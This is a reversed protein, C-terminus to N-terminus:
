LRPSSQRFPSSPPLRQHACFDINLTASIGICQPREAALSETFKEALSSKLPAHRPDDSTPATLVRKIKKACSELVSNGIFKDNEQNIRFVRNRFSASNPFMKFITVTPITRMSRIFLISM